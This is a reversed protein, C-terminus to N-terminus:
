LVASTYHISDRIMFRRHQLRQKILVPVTSQLNRQQKCNVLEKMKLRTRLIEFVILKTMDTQGDTRGVAHFLEAGVPRIKM